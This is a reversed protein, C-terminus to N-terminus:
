STPAGRTKRKWFLWAAVALVILAGSGFLAYVLVKAQRQAEYPASGLQQPRMSTYKLDVSPSPDTKQYRIQFRAEQGFSVNELRYFVHQFGRILSTSPTDQPPRAEEPAQVTFAGSRLPEQIDVELSQIPHNAKIVYDVAKQSASGAREATHFALYFNPYPLTLSVEDHEGRARTQYLQCFHQGEHSLSCADSIVAGKPILFSTKLPFGPAQAFRGDYIVLMSPDDYEPMLAVKMRGILLKGPDVEDSRGARDACGALALGLLVAAAAHVLCIPRLAALPLNPIDPM